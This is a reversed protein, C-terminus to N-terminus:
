MSLTRQATIRFTAVLHDTDVRTVAVKGRIGSLYMLGVRIPMSDNSVQPTMGFLAAGVLHSATTVTPIGTRVDYSRLQVLKGAPAYLLVVFLREKYDLPPMPQEPGKPACWVEQADFGTPALNLSAGHIYSTQASDTPKFVAVGDAFVACSGDERFEGTVSVAAKGPPLQRVPQQSAFAEASQQGALRGRPIATALAAALTAYALVRPISLSKIM